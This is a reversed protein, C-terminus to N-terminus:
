SSCCSFSSSPEESPVSNSLSNSSSSSSLSPSWSKRSSSEADSYMGDREVDLGYFLEETGLPLACTLFFGTCDVAARNSLNSCSSVKKPSRSSWGAAEVVDVSAVVAVVDEEHFVGSPITPM